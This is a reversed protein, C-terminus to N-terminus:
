AFRGNDSNMDHFEIMSFLFLILKFFAKFYKWIYYLALIETEPSFMTLNKNLCCTTRKRLTLM